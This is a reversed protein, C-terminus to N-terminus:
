LPVRVKQIVLGSLPLHTFILSPGLSSVLPLAPLISPLGLGYIDATLSDLHFTTETKGLSHCTLPVLFKRRKWRNEEREIQFSIRVPM